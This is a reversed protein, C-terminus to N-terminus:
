RINEFESGGIDQLSSGGSGQEFSEEYDYEDDYYNKQTKSYSINGNRNFKIYYAYYGSNPAIFVTTDRNALRNQAVVRKLYGDVKVLKVCEINDGTNNTLRVESYGYVMTTSCFLCFVILGFIVGKLYGSRRM